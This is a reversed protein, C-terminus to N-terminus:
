RYGVCYTIILREKENGLEGHRAEIQSWPINISGPISQDRFILEDLTNLLIFDTQNKARQDLMTKLDDTSVLDFREFAVGESVHCACNGVFILLAFFMWRVMGGM